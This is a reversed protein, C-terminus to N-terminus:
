VLIHVGSLLAYSLKTTQKSRHCDSPDDILSFIDEPTDYYDVLLPKLVDFEIPDVNNHLDQLEEIYPEDFIDSRSAVLQGMKIYAPGMKVIENKIWRANDSQTYTKRTLTRNIFRGYFLFPKTIPFANKYYM